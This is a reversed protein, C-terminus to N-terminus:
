LTQGDGHCVSFDLTAISPKMIHMPIHLFVWGGRPPVIPDCMLEIYQFQDLGLRGSKRHASENSHVVFNHM